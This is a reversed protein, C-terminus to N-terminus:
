SYHTCNDWLTIQLLSLLADYNFRKQIQSVVNHRNKITAVLLVFNYRYLSAVLSVFNYRYLNKCRTSFVLKPQIDVDM